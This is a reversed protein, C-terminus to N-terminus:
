IPDNAGQQIFATAPTQRAYEAYGVLGSITIHDSSKIYTIATTAGVM